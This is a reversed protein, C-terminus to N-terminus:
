GLINKWYDSVRKLQEPSEMTMWENGSFGPAQDLMKRNINLVVDKGTM